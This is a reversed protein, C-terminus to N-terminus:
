WKEFAVACSESSLFRICKEVYRSSEPNLAKYQTMEDSVQAHTRPRVLFGKMFCEALIVTICYLDFLSNVRQSDADLSYGLTHERTPVGESCVAGFNTM